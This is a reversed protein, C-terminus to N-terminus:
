NLGNARLFDDRATIAEKLDAKIKDILKIASKPSVELANELYGIKSNLSHLEQELRIDIRQRAAQDELEKCELDLKSLKNNCHKKLSTVESSYYKDMSQLDKEHESKMASLLEAESAYELKKWEPEFVGFM